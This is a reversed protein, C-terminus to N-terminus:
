PSAGARGWGAPIPAPTPVANRGSECQLDYAVAPCLNKLANRQANLGHFAMPRMTGTAPCRCSVRGRETHLMNDVRSPDLPRMMPEGPRRPLADWDERSLMRIDILPRIRHADWLWRKLDAQDYGRDASFERCRQALMPEDRFLAALDRTLMPQESVTAKEVSFAVPLKYQTDGILHLKHGFWSTIREWPKGTRKSM